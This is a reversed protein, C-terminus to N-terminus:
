VELWPRLEDWHHIHALPEVGAQRVRKLNGQYLLFSVGAQISAQADIWSDISIWYQAPLDPFQRLVYEFGDPEPKLAGMKERGVVVDFLDFIHNNKLAIEAAKLSNNTVVALRYRKKLEALLEAAGPELGAAQMGIQEYRTPIEWMEATLTETMRGSEMAKQILTATTHRDLDMAPPLIGRAVLLQYTDRKMGEFDIRSHLLTNTEGDREKSKRVKTLTFKNFM